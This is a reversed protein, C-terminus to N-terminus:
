YDYIVRYARTGDGRIINKSVYKDPLKGDLCTGNDVYIIKGKPFRDDRDTSPCSQPAFFFKGFGTYQADKPSGELQYIKPDYRMYFLVLPYIGGTDKTIIIKDASDYSKKIESMVKGFGENSYWNKHVQAHIFYQHFFYVFSYILIVGFIIKTLIKLSPRVTRYFQIFGFAAVIELIPFIVLSRRMNPSDDVTIAATVPAVLLWLILFKYKSDKNAALRYLGYIIFPLEILYVVGSQPVQLWVPLGGKTFLFQGSFYQLYNNVFTQGYSIVKNHLLRTYFLPSKSIGDERIQEEMILKTEPFTFISVQGFRKTGGSAFFVLFLAILSILTFTIVLCNKYARSEKKWTKYFFCLIVFFLLPVFVRPAPYIFFSLVFFAGGLIVHFIRKTKSSHILTAFGLIVFFLAVNTEASMRSFVIGWPAISTFLACLASVAVDEFIVFALFYVAFITLAGVLAAPLRTSFENLGFMAIPLMTMYHYGTPNFDNFMNVYLPWPHGGDDKGTLLLSYGNYGLNAEDVQFGVPIENLRYFRLFIALVFILGLIVYIIKKNRLM